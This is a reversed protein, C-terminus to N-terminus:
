YGTKQPLGDTLEYYDGKDTVFIHKELHTDTPLGFAGMGIAIFDHGAPDWFLFSGCVSCFGRRVNDSSQYWTIKNEGSMTLATRKVNTSAWYHGSQRRCLSCHCADPARLEGDVQFRVAGCLCSGKHM